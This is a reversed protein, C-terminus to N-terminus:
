VISTQSHYQISKLINKTRFYILIYIKLKKKKKSVLVDFYYSFM